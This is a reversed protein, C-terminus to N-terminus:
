GGGGESVGVVVLGGLLAVANALLTLVLVVVMVLSGAWTFGAAATRFGSRYRGGGDAVSVEKMSENRFLLELTGAWWQTGPGLSSWRRLGPCPPIFARSVAAM